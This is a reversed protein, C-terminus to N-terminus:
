RLAFLRTITGVDPLELEMQIAAPLINKQQGALPWEESSVGGNVFRWRLAQVKDLLPYREVQGLGNRDPWLLWEIRDGTFRFATLRAGQGDTTVILLRLESNLGDTSRLLQLPPPADSSLPLEPAAVQLLELEIRQVARPIDRWRALEVAIRGHSDTMQATARWTLVGLVSFLALAVVLEILTLGRAHGPTQGRLHQRATTSM